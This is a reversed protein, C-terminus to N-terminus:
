CENSHTRYYINNCSVWISDQPNFISDTQATSLLDKVKRENAPSGMDDAYFFHTRNNIIRRAVAVWHNGNLFIPIAIKTDALHPRCIDRQRRIAFRYKTSQWGHNQLAVSFSPDVYSSEMQTCLIDLFLVLIEHDVPQSHSILQRLKATTLTINPKRVLSALKGNPSFEQCLRKILSLSDEHLSAITTTKHQAVPLFSSPCWLQSAPSPKKNRPSGLRDFSNEKQLTLKKSKEMTPGPPPSHFHLRILRPSPHPNIQNILPSTKPLPIITSSTVPPKNLTNIRPPVNQTASDETVHLRTTFVNDNSSNTKFKTFPHKLQTNSESTTSTTNPRNAKNADNLIYPNTDTTM